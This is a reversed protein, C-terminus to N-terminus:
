ESVRAFGARGSDGVIPLCVKIRLAWEAQKAIM